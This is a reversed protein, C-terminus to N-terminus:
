NFLPATSIQNPNLCIKQLKNDKWQFDKVWSAVILWQFPNPLQKLCVVLFRKKKSWSMSMRNFKWLFAIEIQAFFQNGSDWQSNTLRSALAKPWAFLHAVMWLDMTESSFTALHLQSVSIRENTFFFFFMGFCNWIFHAILWRSQCVNEMSSFQPNWTLFCVNQEIFSCVANLM